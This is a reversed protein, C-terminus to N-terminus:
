AHSGEQQSPLTQRARRDRVWGALGGPAVSVAVLLVIGYLFTRLEPHIRLVEPVVNFIAAGAVVGWVTGAGGLIVMILLNEMYYFDFVAPDIFTIYHAYCSGAVGGLLGSIAFTYLKVRWTNIGAAQALIEDERVTLIARGLRSRVLLTFFALSALTMVLVFYYWAIKGTVIFGFLTATPIGPLGMAGRTLDTWKTAVLQALLTFSLTVIVFSHRSLRLSPVGIAGAFLLGATGAAPLTVWFPLNLRLALLASTYAGIGFFAPPALSLLGAYGLVLNLSLALIVYIETMVMIHLLYNSRLVVPLLVALVIAAWVARNEVWSTKM